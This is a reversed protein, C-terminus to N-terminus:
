FGGTRIDVGALVFVVAMLTIARIHWALRKLEAEAASPTDLAPIVRLRAHAALAVTATLLVLKALIHAEVRDSPMLWGAVDPRHLYALWPGTIAQAVLAPLALREFGSEFRTVIGPDRARLARPLVTLALVLHGGTWITAGLVHLIVLLPFPM